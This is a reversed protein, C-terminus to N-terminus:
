IEKMLNLLGYVIQNNEINSKDRSIIGLIIEDSIRSFRNEFLLLKNRLQEDHNRVLLNLQQFAEKLKNGSIM